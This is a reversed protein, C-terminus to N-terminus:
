QTLQIHTEAAINQFADDLEATTPSKFYKGGTLEAVAQLNADDVATGLGITYLTVGAAKLRNAESTLHSYATSTGPSQPSSCSGDYNSQSYTANQCVTNTMGDTLLVVIKKSNMRAGSGTSIRRGLAAAYAINTGGQPVLITDMQSRITSFNSILNYNITRACESQHLSPLIYPQESESRRPSFCQWWHPKSRASLCRCCLISPCM